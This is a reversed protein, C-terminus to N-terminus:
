ELSRVVASHPASLKDFDDRGRGAWTVNRKSGAQESHPTVLNSVGGVGKDGVMSNIICIKYNPITGSNFSM